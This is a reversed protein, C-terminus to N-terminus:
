KLRWCKRKVFFFAILYQISIKKFIGIPVNKHDAKQKGVNLGTLIVLYNILYRAEIEKTKKKKKSNSNRKVRHM